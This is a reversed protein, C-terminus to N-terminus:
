SQIKSRTIPEPVQSAILQWAEKDKKWEHLLRVWRKFDRAKLEPHHQQFLALQEPHGWHVVFNYFGQVEDDSLDNPMAGRQKWWHDFAARGTSEAVFPQSAYTLRLSPHSEAYQLWAETAGPVRPKTVSGFVESARHGAREIAIQWYHLAIGPSVNVCARAQDAAAEWAGPALRMAIRFHKQWDRSRAGELSALEHM